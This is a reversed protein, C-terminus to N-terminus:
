ILGLVRAEFLAPIASTVELKKYINKLHFNVADLTVFFMGAIEEKTRGQDMFRLINIEMRTFTLGNKHLPKLYLPYLAAMNRMEEALNMLYPTEGKEKVYAVLVPLLANGEDVLLRYFGRRKAIKLARELAAFALEREESRFFSVALLLDLECLDMLRKGEALLPRLREVLAVVAMHKRYVIYCRIKILYRYTDLMNFDSFENPADHKMWENILEHDGDYFAAYVEAADLNYDFEQEGETQVFRRINDIYSEARVTKGTALLIKSQLYLAAFLLRRQQDNDFEGVVKSVLQEAESLRNQQYFWEARCLTYMAPVVSVEYMCNMADIFVDKKGELFPALRTYDLVGNLLSPRGASIQITPIKTGATKLTRVIELLRGVTLKPYVLEMGMRAILYGDFHELLEGARDLQGDMILNVFLGCFARPYQKLEEPTLAYYSARDRRAGILFYGLFFDTMRSELEEAPLLEEEPAPVDAQAAGDSGDADAADRGTVPPEPLEVAQVEVGRGMNKRKRGM